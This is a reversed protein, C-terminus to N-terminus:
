SARNRQHLGVFGVIVRENQEDWAFTIRITHHPDHSTGKGLHPLLNWATGNLRTRYWDLFQGMTSASQNLKYFWGPCTKGIRDASGNRYATALWALADLVEPPNAFPTDENSRSDDEDGPAAPSPETEPAAHDAAGSAPCAEGGEKGSADDDPRTPSPSASGGRRSRRM